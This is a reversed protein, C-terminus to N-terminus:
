LQNLVAGIGNNEILLLWQYSSIM